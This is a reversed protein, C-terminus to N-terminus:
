RKSLRLILQTGTDLKVNKNHETIVTSGDAASSLTM